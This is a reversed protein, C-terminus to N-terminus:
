NVDSQLVPSDFHMRGFRAMFKDCGTHPQDTVMIIAAGISLNTGPPLNQASLDMDVYLQDGALPWREKEVALLSIVRTNMISIQQDLDASGDPTKLSGRVRWSDGVLGQDPDLQGAELILRKDEAPRSVILELTGLDKPSQLIDDLGAQLQKMSLHHTNEM